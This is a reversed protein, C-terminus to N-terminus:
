TTVRQRKNFFSTLTQSEVKKRVCKPKKRAEGVGVGFLTTQGKTLGKWPIKFLDYMNRTLLEGMAKSLCGWLREEYIGVDPKRHELLDAAVVCEGLTKHGPTVSYIYSVREGVDVGRGAAKLQDAALVHPLKGAYEEKNISKSLLLSSLPARGERLRTVRKTLYEEMAEESHLMGLRLASALTTAVFGCNDRNDLGALKLTAEGDRKEKKVKVYKKKALFLTPCSVDEFEIELVGGLVQKELRKNVWDEIEKGHDWSGDLSCKLRIMVSDTDGYLIEAGLHSYNEVVSRAVEKIKDQGWQTISAACPLCLLKGNKAGLQGYLSNAALKVELQEADLMAYESTGKAFGKMRMKVQSRTEMLKRWVRPVVGERVEKKVFKFGNSCDNTEESSRPVLTSACINFTRGTSPYLSAFDLTIVPDDRYLGVKPDHVYGGAYKEGGQTLDFLGRAGPIQRLLPHFSSRRGTEAFVEEHVKLEPMLYQDGVESKVMMFLYYSGGRDLSCRARVRLIRSRAVLRRIMDMKKCIGETLLVDRICYLLLEERAWEGGHFYPYIQDYSVDGKGGLKYYGGVTSLKHNHLKLNVNLIYMDMFIRGPCDITTVEVNRGGRVTTTVTYILPESAMRSWKAVVGLIECRKTLYPVDFHNSNYGIVIDPDCEAFYEFFSQLMQSETDFLRVEGRSAELEKRERDQQAKLAEQKEGVMEREVGLDEENDMEALEYGREFPQIEKLVVARVYFSVVKGGCSTSILGVPDRASETGSKNYREAVTEIDFTFSRLEPDPGPAQCKKVSDWGVERELAPIELWEFSSIGKGLLFGDLANKTEGWCLIGQQKAWWKVLGLCQSSPVTIKTFLRAHEEYVVFGRSWVEEFGLELEVATEECTCSERYVGFETFGCRWSRCKPRFKKFMRAVDGEEIRGEVHISLPVDCVEVWTRGGEEDIGFVTISHTTPESTEVFDVCFIKKSMLTQSFKHSFSYM